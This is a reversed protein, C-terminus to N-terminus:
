ISDRADQMSSVSVLGAVGLGAWRRLATLKLVFHLKSIAGPWNTNIKTITNVIDM